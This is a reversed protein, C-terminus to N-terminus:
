NNFYNFKYYAFLENITFTKTYQSCQTKYGNKAIKIVNDSIVFQKFENKRRNFSSIKNINQM